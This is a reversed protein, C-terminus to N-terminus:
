GSVAPTAAAASSSATTSANAASAGNIFQQWAAQMASTDGGSVATELNQFDPNNLLNQAATSAASLPSGSSLGGSATSSTGANLSTQLQALTTLEDVINTMSSQATTADGSQIANSLETVPGGAGGGGHHRHGHHGRGVSGVGSSSSTASTATTAQTANAAVITNPQASSNNANQYRAPLLSQAQSLNGSQLAAGIQGLPSNPNIEKGAPLAHTINAYANNASTLDGSMLAQALADFSQRRQAWASSTSSTQNVNNASSGNIQMNM